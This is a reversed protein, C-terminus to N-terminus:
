NLGGPPLEYRWGKNLRLSLSDILNKNEPLNSININEGRDASLDYLETAVLSGSTKQEYDWYKWETYRYQETIISYSMYRNGDPTEKPKRHFQTFAASKWEADPDNLL